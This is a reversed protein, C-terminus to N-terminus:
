PEALPGSVAVPHRHTTFTGPLATVLPLPKTLKEVGKSAAFGFSM